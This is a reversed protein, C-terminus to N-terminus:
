KRLSDQVFDLNEKLIEEIKQSTFRQKYDVKKFNVYCIRKEEDWHTPWTYTLYVISYKLGRGRLLEAFEQLPTYEDSWDGRSSEPCHVTVHGDSEVRIFLLEKSVDKGELLSLYRQVRRNYKEVFAPFELM